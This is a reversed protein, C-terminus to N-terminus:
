MKWIKTELARADSITKFWAYRSETQILKAQYIVTTVAPGPVLLLSSSSLIIRIFDLSRLASFIDSNTVFINWYLTVTPIVRLSTIKKLSCKCSWGKFLSSRHLGREARLLTRQPLGPVSASSSCPIYSGTCSAGLFEANLCWLTVITALKHIQVRSEIRPFISNRPAGSRLKVLGDREISHMAHLWSMNRLYKDTHFAAMIQLTFPLCSNDNFTWPGSHNLSEKAEIKPKTPTEILLLLEECRLIRRM